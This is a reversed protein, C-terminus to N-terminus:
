AIWRWTAEVVVWRGNQYRVRYTQGSASLGNAHYGGPLVIETDTQWAPPGARFIIAPTGTAPDRDGRLDLVCRSFKKVVPAHGAFRRLLADPPDTWPTEDEASTRALCFTVTGPQASPAHEAFQQRHVAEAVALAQSERWGPEGPVPDPDQPSECGFAAAVLAVALCRGAV